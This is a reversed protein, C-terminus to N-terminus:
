AAHGKQGLHTVLNHPAYPFPDYPAPEPPPIARTMKTVNTPGGKQDASNWTGDCCVILSKPM